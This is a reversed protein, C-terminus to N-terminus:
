PKATLQARRKTGVKPLIYFSLILAFLVAFGCMVSPIGQRTEPSVTNAAATPVLFVLWGIILGRLAQLKTFSKGGEHMLQNAWKWGLGLGTLLWGYYYIGYAGGSKVHLQFIVYNGTCKYGSFAQSYAVFFVMFAAMTAYGFYVLRRNRKGAIVHALHIGLPPLATIAVFGLRSWDSGHGASGTCTFYEALQFIGLCLLMAVVLRSFVNMKYRWLTYIAMLTEVTFTALMIPPSFCNFRIENAPKKM